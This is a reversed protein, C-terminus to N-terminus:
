CEDCESFFQKLEYRAEQAFYMEEEFYTMSGNFFSLIPELIEGFHIINFMSHPSFIENESKDIPYRFSFSKPDIEELDKILIEFEDYSKISNPGFDWEIGLANFIERMPRLLRHLEHNLIDDKQIENQAIIKCALAGKYVFAKMFLELSHRYLYFVPYGEYDAYADTTFKAKLENAARHYGEAYIALDGIPDNVINFSINGIGSPNIELFQNAM